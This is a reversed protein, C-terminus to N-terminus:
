HSATCGAQLHRMLMFADDYQVQIRTSRRDMCCSLHLMVSAVPCSLHLMCCSLVSAVHCSLHLCQLIRLAARDVDVAPVDFGSHQMLSCSHPTARLPQSATCATPEV